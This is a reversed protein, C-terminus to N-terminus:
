MKELKRVLETLGDASLHHNAVWESFGPTNVGHEKSFPPLDDHGVSRKTYADPSPVDSVEPFLTFDPEPEIETEISKIVDVFHSQKEGTKRWEEFRRSCSQCGPFWSPTGDASLTGVAKTRGSDSITVITGDKIAFTSM